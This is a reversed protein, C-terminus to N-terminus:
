VKLKKDVDLSAVVLAAVVVVDNINVDSIRVFPNQCLLFM